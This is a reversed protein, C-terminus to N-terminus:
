DMLNINEWSKDIEYDTERLDDIFKREDYNSKIFSHILVKLATESKIRGMVCMALFDFMRYKCVTLDFYTQQMSAKDADFFDMTAIITTIDADDFVNKISRGAIKKGQMITKWLEIYDEM